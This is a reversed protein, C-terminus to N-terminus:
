TRASFGLNAITERPLKSSGSSRGLDVRLVRTKSIFPVTAFAGRQLGQSRTVTGCSVSFNGYQTWAVNQAASSDHRVLPVALAVIVVVIMQRMM